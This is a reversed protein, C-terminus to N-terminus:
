IMKRIRNNFGDAIYLNTGDTTIGLPFNFKANMGAGDSSGPSGATGALTSVTGTVIVIKRITNNPNIETVYLNIGDLCVGFPGNFRATAGVGDISGFTGATGALTSVVGTAIVVKRITDNLTDAVFLNSGDTTIGIPNNFKATTGTGDAFGSTGATGVLTTVVGTAIVVKRITHNGSDTVFLNMGDTTIGGSDNFRADTGVGDASGAVGSTGALTTVVGTAIVVKRITNNDTLYLNTGDTTIGGPYHFRAAVGTGDVAGLSGATGALTTVVGTAIVVKRITHNDSDTVFLNVGDTTIGDPIFFRADAGTGDAAWPAGAATGALTTVVGTTIVAKRIANNQSDAVFLNTGDTTIWGPYHFTAAVGTGDASGSTGATGAFTTVVGTAIVVKRITNNDSDVVFLNTGDTTIGCPLYFRAVAGTGNTSGASGASGAITNVVGTAIIVKRITNNGSDAVFLNTGDTTIGAPFTFRAAAGTGDISGSIGAGGALTTVAGTAIIVKRITQNGSETVYLNTGDTTIGSPGNFTAALGVGDLSGPVGASGALTTVTGTGIDVKRITNNQFDAVFLSTGDTTIGRPENFRASAGIGDASGSVQVTGALTTVKGTAIGVKRITHNDTDTVYLSIGDTTVGVPNTFWATAGTGDMSGPGAITSVTQSLALSTGQIAGGMQVNGSSGSNGGCGSLLLTLIILFFHVKPRSMRM